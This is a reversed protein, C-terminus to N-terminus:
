LRRVRIARFQVKGTHYQLGILGPGSLAAPVDGESVLRDNLWVTMRTGQAIIRCANWFGIEGDRSPVKQAHRQAPVHKYVAGTRHLPSRFRGTAGDYGTDDIQVEIARDYFNADELEASPRPARLFIGPNAETNGSGQGLFAKWQLRLEINAFLDPDDYFLVSLGANGHM